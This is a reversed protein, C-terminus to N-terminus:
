QSSAADGVSATDVSSSAAKAFQARKALIYAKQHEDMNSMDCFMIKQEQEWQLRQQECQVRRDEIDLKRQECRDKIDLKRQEILLDKEWRERKLEVEEAKMVMLNGMMDKYDDGGEGKRQKEKSQKRGPPRAKKGPSQDVDGQQSPVSVHLEKSKSPRKDVSAFKETHRLVLWCHIFPFSKGKSAGAYRAQAELIQLLSSSM